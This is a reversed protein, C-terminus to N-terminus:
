CLFLLCEYIMSVPDGVFPGNTNPVLFKLHKKRKVQEVSVEEVRIEARHTIVM